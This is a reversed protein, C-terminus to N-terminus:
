VRGVLELPRLVIRGAEEAALHATFLDSIGKSGPVVLLWIHGPMWARERDTSSPEAPGEPHSHYHGLVAAGTERKTRQTELLLATDIEFGSLPDAARNPSTISDTIVAMAGEVRGILLGCCEHPAARAAEAAIRRRLTGPLVLGTVDPGVAGRGIASV